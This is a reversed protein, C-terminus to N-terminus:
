QWCELFPYCFCCESCLVVVTGKKPNFLQQNDKKQTEYCKDMEASLKRINPAENFPQVFVKEPDLFCFYNRSLKSKRVRAGIGLRM